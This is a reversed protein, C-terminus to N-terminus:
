EVDSAVNPLPVHRCNKTPPMQKSCRRSVLNMTWMGNLQKDFTKHFACENRHVGACLVRPLIWRLEQQRAVDEAYGLFCIIELKLFM